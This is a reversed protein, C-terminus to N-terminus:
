SNMDEEFEATKIDDFVSMKEKAKTGDMMAMKPSSTFGGFEDMDGDQTENDENSISPLKPAAEHGEFTALPVNFSSFQKTTLVNDCNESVDLGAQALSILRMAVAFEKRTLYFVSEKDALSWIQKLVSKQLGSKKMFVVVEKGKLKGDGAGRSDVHTFLTEYYKTEVDEMSAENTNAIGAVAAADFGSDFSKEKTIVTPRDQNKLAKMPTSQLRREEDASVIMNMMINDIADKKTKEKVLNNEEEKPLNSEHKEKLKIEEEEVNEVTVTPATPSPATTEDMEKENEKREEPMKEEKFSLQSAIKSKSHDSVAISANEENGFDKFESSIVSAFGAIIPDQAAAANDVNITSQKQLTPPIPFGEFHAVNIMESSHINLAAHSVEKGNQAHSIFRM